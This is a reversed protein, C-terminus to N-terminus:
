FISLFLQESLKQLLMIGAYGNGKEDLAPSFIGIGMRTPVVAMIGGGDDSDETANNGAYDHFIGMCIDDVAVKGIEGEELKLKIEGTASETGDSNTDPTVSEIIGAGPARRTGKTASISVRSFARKRSM